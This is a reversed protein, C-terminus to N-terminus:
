KTPVTCGSWSARRGSFFAYLSFCGLVVAVPADAWASLVFLPLAMLAFTWTIFPRRGVTELLRM